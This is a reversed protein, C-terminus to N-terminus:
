GVVHGQVSGGATKLCHFFLTIRSPSSDIDIDLWGKRKGAILLSGQRAQGHEEVVRVPEWGGEGRTMLVQWTATGESYDGQDSFLVFPTGSGDVALTAAYAWGSEPAYVTEIDGWEGDRCVYRVVGDSVGAFTRAWAFHLRGASDVALDFDDGQELAATGAVDEIATWGEHSRTAVRFVDYEDYGDWVTAKFAVYVDDQYVEATPAYYYDDSSWGTLTYFQAWVQQAGDRVSYAIARQAGDLESVWAVHVNDQSDVAITPDTEQSYSGPEGENAPPYEIEGWAETQADYRRYRLRSWYYDSPAEITLRQAWVVHVNGDSDLALVVSHCIEPYTTPEDGPDSLLVADSWTQGDDDSYRAYTQDVESIGAVIGSPGVYAVWWRRRASDYALAKTGPSGYISPITAQYEYRDVIARLFTTAGM